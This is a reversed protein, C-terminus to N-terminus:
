VEDVAVVRRRHVLPQGRGQVVDEVLDGRDLAGGPEVAVRVTWMPRHDHQAGRLAPGSRFLDILQRDLTGPPGVLYRQGGGPVVGTVEGEEFPPHARVPRLLEEVLVARRDRGN